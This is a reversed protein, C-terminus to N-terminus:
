LNRPMIHLQPKSNCYDKIFLNVWHHWWSIQLNFATKKDRKNIWVEACCFSNELFNKYCLEHCLKYIGDILYTYIKHRLIHIYITSILLRFFHTSLHKLYQAYAHWFTKLSTKIITGFNQVCIKFWIRIYLLLKFTICCDLGKEQRKTSQM